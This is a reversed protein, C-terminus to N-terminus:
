EANAQARVQGPHLEGELVSAQVPGVQGELRAADRCGDVGDGQGQSPEGHVPEADLFQVDFPLVTRGGVLTVLAEESLGPLDCPPQPFVGAEEGVRHHLVRDEGLVEVAFTAYPQVFDGQVVVALPQLIVPLGRKAALKRSNWLAQFELPVAPATSELRGERKGGQGECLDARQQAGVRSELSGQAAM